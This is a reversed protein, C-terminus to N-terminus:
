FILSRAVLRFFVITRFPEGRFIIISKSLTLALTLTLAIIALDGYKVYFVEIFALSICVGKECGEIGILYEVQEYLIQLM